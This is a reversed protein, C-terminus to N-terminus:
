ILQALLTLTVVLGLALNMMRSKKLEKRMDNMDLRHETKMKDVLALLESKVDSSVDKVHTITKVEPVQVLRPAPLAKAEARELRNKMDEIQEDIAMMDIMVAQETAEIREILPQLDVKEPAEVPTPAEPKPMLAMAQEVLAMIDLGAQPPTSPESSMEAPVDKAVPAQLQVDMSGFKLKAM